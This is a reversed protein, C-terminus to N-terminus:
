KSLYLWPNWATCHIIAAPLRNTYTVEREISFAPNLAEM